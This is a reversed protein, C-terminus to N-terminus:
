RTVGVMEPESEPALFRLANVRGIEAALCSRHRQGTDIGRPTTGVSRARMRRHVSLASPPRKRGAAHERALCRPEYILPLRPCASPHRFPPERVTWRGIRASGPCMLSVSMLMSLRIHPM